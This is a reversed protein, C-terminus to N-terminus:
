RIPRASPPPRPLRGRSPTRAARSAAAPKAVRSVNMAFLAQQTFSAMPEDATTDEVPGGGCGLVALAPILITWRNM